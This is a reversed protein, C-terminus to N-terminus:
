FCPSWFNIMKLSATNAWEISLYKKPNIRFLMICFCPSFIIEVSLIDIYHFFYFSICTFLHSYMAVRNIDLSQCHSLNASLLFKPNLIKDVMDWNNPELSAHIELQEFFFHLQLCWFFLNVVFSAEEETFSKFSEDKVQLLFLTLHGELSSSEHKLSFFM